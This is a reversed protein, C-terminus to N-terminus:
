FVSQVDAVAGNRVLFSWVAHDPLRHETLYYRGDFYGIYYPTGGGIFNDTYLDRYKGATLDELSDAWLITAANQSGSLDTSVTVLYGEPSSLPDKSSGADHLVPEIQSMGAIADPVTYEKLVRFSSLSCVLVSPAATESAEYPLGSVFLIRNGEITFSRVYRKELAAVKRIETLYVDGTGAKRRFLYM